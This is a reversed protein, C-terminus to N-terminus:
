RWGLAGKLGGWFGPAIPVFEVSIFHPPPSPSQPQARSRV